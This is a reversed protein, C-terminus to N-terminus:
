DFTTLKYNECRSLEEKVKLQLERLLDRNREAEVFFIFIEKDALIIFHPEKVGICNKHFGKSYASFISKSSDSNQFVMKKILFKSDLSDKEIRLSILEERELNDLESSYLKIFCALTAKRTVNESNEQVVSSYGLSSLFLLIPPCEEESFNTPEEEIEQEVLVDKKKDVKRVENQCQSFVLICFLLAAYIRM